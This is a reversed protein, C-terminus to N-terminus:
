CSVCGYFGRLVFSISTAFCLVLCPDEKEKRKKYWVRKVQQYGAGATARVLRFPWSTSLSLGHCRALGVHRHASGLSGGEVATVGGSGDVDGANSNQHATTISRALIGLDRCVHKVYVYVRWRARTRVCVLVFITFVVFPSFCFRM